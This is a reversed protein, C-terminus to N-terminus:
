SVIYTGLRVKGDESPTNAFFMPRKDRKRRMELFVNCTSVHTDEPLIATIEVSEQPQIGCTQTPLVSCQRDEIIVGFEVDDRLASFGINEICIKLSLKKKKDLRVNRVVLRYGLHCGIYDFVSKQEWIGREDCRTEKWQQLRREDHARNLYCVKTCRMEGVLEQFSLEPSGGVAEGGYPVHSAISGTFELEEERCWKGGWGSEAKSQCGYTGLDDLSGFMGDNFLGTKDEFAARKESHLLRWQQPTRVAIPINGLMERWVQMLQKLREESLFKSDHMEGWSGVLMGQVVFIQEQHARIVAGLQRMHETVTQLFDPEHEMGRGDRDYTIRLIIERNHKGFFDLIDALNCLAEGSIEGERFAGIDILALAIREEAHLCWYLEEFNPKEEIVFPYIHYLGCSPNQLYMTSEELIEPKFQVHKRKRIFSM